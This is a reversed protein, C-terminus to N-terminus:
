RKAQPLIHSMRLQDSFFWLSNGNLHYYNCLLKYEFIQFHHLVRVWALKRVLSFKSMWTVCTKAGNTGENKRFAISKSLNYFNCKCRIFYTTRSVRMSHVQFITWIQIGSKITFRRHLWEASWHSYGSGDRQYFYLTCGECIGSEGHMYVNYM